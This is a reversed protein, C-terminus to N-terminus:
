RLLKRKTAVREGEFRTTVAVKLTGNTSVTFRGIAPGKTESIAVPGQMRISRTRCSNIEVTLEGKMVLSVSERGNTKLLTEFMACPQGDVNRVAVLTMGLNDTKASNGTMGLLEAAVEKPVEITQGVQVRKGNLFEALPNPKGFNQLQERLIKDEEETIPKGREDTITLQTGQRQVFYVHGSVPQTAEMSRKKEDRINTVSARYDLRAQTPRGSELALIKLTRDQTRELTQKTTDVLQNQQRITREADLDCQVKQHIEDNVQTPRKQFVVMQKAAAPQNAAATGNVPPPQQAEVWSNCSVALIVICSICYSRILRLM